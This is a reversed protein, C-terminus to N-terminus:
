SFAESSNPISFRFRSGSGEASDVGIEGGHKEVFEKCLPLGLGTGREGASGTRTTKERFDFIKDIIESPIGIGEDTVVIDVFGEKEAPEIRLDINGGQHSFKVANSLLNRLVTQLMYVDGYVELDHPISESITVEKSAANDKELKLVGLAIEKLSCFSPNFDIVGRQSRSWQLLNELLEYLNQASTRMEESFKRMDNISLSRMDESMIKSLGIFGNFPARLDHAIISFLKDKAANMERLKAESRRLARESEVRATIDEGSGLIGVISGDQSKLPSNQWAIIRIKGDFTKIENENYELFEKEGTIISKFVNKIEVIQSEPIFNDFWNRGVIDRELLGLVKATKKNALTVTGDADLAIIMSGAIDLYNRANNRQIELEEAARKLALNQEAIEENQTTLEENQAAIEENQNTLTENLDLIRREYEERATVDIMVGALGAVEGNEDYFTSKHFVVFYTEGGPKRIQWDYVQTGPNNFLEEDKEAYVEAVERPGLEYVTKGIIDKRDRGSIKEFAKNCGLYIGKRDKYFVPAPITEILREMFAKQVALDEIAKKEKSIDLHTGVARIAKGEDDRILVARSLVDVIRGSKHKMRIEIRFDERKGSVLDDFTEFAKAADEPLTLKEFTALSNELEDDEYGLIDKWSASLYLENTTLDWDWVGDTTAEFALRLREERREFASNKERLNAVEREAAALREALEEYTFNKESM